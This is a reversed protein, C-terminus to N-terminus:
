TLSTVDELCRCNRTQNHGQSAPYKAEALNEVLCAWYTVATSLLQVSTSLVTTMLLWKLDVQQHSRPQWSMRHQAALGVLGMPAPVVPTSLPRFRPASCPLSCVVAGVHLLLSLLPLPHERLSSTTLASGELWIDLLKDPQSSLPEFCM